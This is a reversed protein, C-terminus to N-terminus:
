KEHLQSRLDQLKHSYHKKQRSFSVEKLTPHKLIPSMGGDAVDWFFIEELVKLNKIFKLSKLESVFLKKMSDSKLQNFDGGKVKEIHLEELSSLGNIKKSIYLSPLAQLMLYTINPNKYLYDINQLKRSASIRIRPVTISSCIKPLSEEKWRSLYLLQLSTVADLGSLQSGGLLILEKLKSFKSFDLPVHEFVKLEELNKLNELLPFDDKSKIKIDRDITLKKIWTEKSLIGIDVQVKSDISDMARIRIASYDEKLAAALGKALFAPDIEFMNTDSSFGYKRVKPVGFLNVAM